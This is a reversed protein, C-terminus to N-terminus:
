LHREFFERATRMTGAGGSQRIGHSTAVILLVTQDTDMGVVPVGRIRIALPCIGRFWQSTTPTFRQAEITAHYIRSAGLAEFIADTPEIFMADAGSYRQQSILAVLREANQRPRDRWCCLAAACTMLILM